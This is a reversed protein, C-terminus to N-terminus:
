TRHHHQDDRKSKHSSERQTGSFLVSVVWVIEFCGFAVREFDFFRDVGDDFVIQDIDEIDIRVVDAFELL